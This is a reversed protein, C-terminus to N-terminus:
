DVGLDEEHEADADDEDEHEADADDEDEHEADADDELWENPFDAPTYRHFPVSNHANTNHHGAHSIGETTPASAWAGGAVSHIGEGEPWMDAAASAADNDDSDEEEEATTPVSTGAGGAVLKGWMDAAISAADDEDNEDEEEGEEEKRKEVTPALVKAGGASSQTAHAAPWMDAAVSAADNDDSEEEEEEEEGTTPVSAGAGGAVSKAWMDAAISAADDEDTENEEEGEEREDEGVTPPTGGAGGAVLQTADVGPWMDAAMSAADNDDSEEEEEEEGQTPVSAGAVGAASPPWMDAAISAADNDDQEGEKQEDQEMTPAAERAGGAVSPTGDFAAWMDAAVSAADNDNDQEDEEEGGQVNPVSVGAAGVVSQVWMDAAVSAADCEEQEEFDELEMSQDRETLNEDDEASQEMGEAGAAGRAGLDSNLGYSGVNSPYLLSTPSPVREVSQPVTSFNASRTPSTNTGSYEGSLRGQPLDTGYGTRVDQRRIHQLALVEDKTLSEGWTWKESSPMAKFRKIEGAAIEAVRRSIRKVETGRGTGEVTMSESLLEKEQVREHLRYFGACRRGAVSVEARSSEATASAFARMAQIETFLTACLGGLIICNNKACHQCKEVVPDSNRLEFTIPQFEAGESGGEPVLHPLQYPVTIEVNQPELRKRPENSKLLQEEHHDLCAHLNDANLLSSYIPVQAKNWWTNAYTKVVRGFEEDSTGAELLAVFGSDFPVPLNDKPILALSTVLSRIVIPIELHQGTATAMGAYIMVFFKWLRDISIVWIIMLFLFCVLEQQLCAQMWGHHRVNAKIIQAAATRLRSEGYYIVKQLQVYFDEGGGHQLNFPRFAKICTPTM